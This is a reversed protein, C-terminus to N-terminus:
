LKKSKFDFQWLGSTPLLHYLKGAVTDVMLPWLGSRGDFEPSLDKKEWFRFPKQKPISYEISVTMPALGNSEEPTM